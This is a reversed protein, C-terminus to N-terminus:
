GPGAERDWEQVTAVLRDPRDCYLGDVGMELVDRIHRVEQCDWAFARVGFRHFLTVLGATWETHHMNMVEIGTAALDAAHRELPQPLTRRSRSHVLHADAASEALEGLFRLSPSCLWLRTVAGAGAAAATELIPRAAARDKVDISLEFDTGLAAYLEELRPVGVRALGAATTRRVRAWRLGRRVSGDHVLVAHGDASLWADTELGGAGHELARRFAPLTNEPEELRAGRHAFTIPPV